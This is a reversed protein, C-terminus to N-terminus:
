LLGLCVSSHFNHSKPRGYYHDAIFYLASTRVEFGPGIFVNSSKRRRTQVVNVPCSFTRAPAQVPILAPRCISRQFCNAEFKDEKKEYFKRAECVNSWSRFSFWNLCIWKGPQLHIYTYLFCICQIEFIEKKTIWKCYAQMSLLRTHCIHDAFTEFKDHHSFCM